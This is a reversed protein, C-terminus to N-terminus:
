KEFKRREAWYDTDSIIGQQWMGLLDNLRELTGPDAKIQIRERLIKEDNINKILELQYSLADFLNEYSTLSRLVYTASSTKIIIDGTNKNLFIPLVRLEFERIEKFQISIIDTDSIEIKTDSIRYSIRQMKFYYFAFLPIGIILPILIISLLFQFRYIRWDPKYVIHKEIM